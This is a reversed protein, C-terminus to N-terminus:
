MLHGEKFYSLAVEWIILYPLMACCYIVHWFMLRGEMHDCLIAKRIIPYSSRGYSLIAFRLMVHSSMVYSSRGYWPMLHGGKHYSLILKCLILVSFMVCRTMLPCLMLPGEMDNCLTANRIILYSSRGYSLILYCSLAHCSLVYGLIVKWIM